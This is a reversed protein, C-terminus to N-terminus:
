APDKKEAELNKMKEQIEKIEEPTYRMTEDEKAQKEQTGNNEAM